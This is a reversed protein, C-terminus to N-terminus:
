RLEGELCKKRSFYIILCENKEIYQPLCHCFVKPPDYSESLPAIHSQLVPRDVDRLTKQCTPFVRLTMIKHPPLSVWM